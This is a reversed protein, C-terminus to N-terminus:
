MVFETYTGSNVRKRKYKREKQLFEVSKADNIKKREEELEEKHRRIAEQYKLTDNVQNVSSYLSGLIENTLQMAQVNGEVVRNKSNFEQLNKKLELGKKELREIEKDYSGLGSRMAELERLTKENENALQNPDLKSYDLKFESKWNKQLNRAEKILAESERKIALVDEIDKQSIGLTDNLVVNAWKNLNLADNKLQIIQNKTQKINEITAKAQEIKALTNMKVNQGVEVVPMAAAFSTVYALIFIGFFMIRM